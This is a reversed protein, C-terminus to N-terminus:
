PFPILKSFVSPRKVFNSIQAGILLYLLTHPASFEDSDRGESVGQDYAHQLLAMRKAMEQTIGIRRGIATFLLIGTVLNIILKIPHEMALSGVKGVFGEPLVVPNQPTNEPCVECTDCTPCETKPPCVIPDIVKETLPNQTFYQYGFYALPLFVMFALIAKKHENAYNWTRTAGFRAHEYCKTALSDNKINTKSQITM